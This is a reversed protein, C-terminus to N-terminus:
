KLIESLLIAITTKPDAVSTKVSLDAKLLARSVNLLRKDNRFFSTEKCKKYYFWSVGIIKAAENDQIRKQIFEQAQAITTFYRTLMSIIYTLEQGSDILNYAVELSRAKDGRSLADQLDFINFEKTVSSLNKIVDETIEGDKGVFDYFKTLQMELLSKDEGVLDILIQANQRNLILNVRVAHKLLWNLLEAGKLEAAEFVYNKGILSKFPETKLATISVSQTLIMITSEAPDNVYQAFDKKDAIRDFNKVIILKKGNGFPFASAIDIIGAIKQGKEVSIVEKDFDSEILSSVAKEIAKTAGELAFIDVGCLFYIPLLNDKKLFPSLSYVSQLKEKAM